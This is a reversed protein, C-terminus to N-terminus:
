SHIPLEIYFTTGKGIESKAWIRGGHEEVLNKCIALGLGSGGTDRSRAEELRYFRNFIV